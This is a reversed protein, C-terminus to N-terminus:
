NTQRCHDNSRSHVIACQLSTVVCWWKIQIKKITTLHETFRTCLRLFLVCRSLFWKIKKRRQILLFYFAFVWLCMPFLLFAFIMCFSIFVYFHFILSLLQVTRLHLAINSALHGHFNHAEISRYFLLTSRFKYLLLWSDSFKSFFIQALLLLLLRLAISIM